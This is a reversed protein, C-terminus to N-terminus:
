LTSNPDRHHVICTEVAITDRVDEHKVVKAVKYAMSRYSSKCRIKRASAKIDKALNVMGNKVFRCDACSECLPSNETSSLRDTFEVFLECWVKTEELDKAIGQDEDVMGQLYDRKKELSKITAVKSKLVDHLKSIIENSLSFLKSHKKAEKSLKSKLESIEASLKSKLEGNELSLESNSKAMEFTESRLQSLQSPKIKGTRIFEEIVSTGM